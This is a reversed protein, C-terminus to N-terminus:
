KLSHFGVMNGETDEIVSIFGFEGISFKNQFIKGGNEEVRSTENACDECSFYIVTGDKSPKKFSMKVLAGSSGPKQPDGPFMWMEPEDVPVKDLKVQLVSEYFAKAREMVDVYIEFWCVSNREINM